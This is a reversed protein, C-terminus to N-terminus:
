LVRSRGNENGLLCRCLWSHREWESLSREAVGCRGRLTGPLLLLLARGESGCKRPIATSCASLPSTAPVMTGALEDSDLLRLPDTSVGDEGGRCFSGRHSGGALGGSSSIPPENGVGLGTSGRGTGPGATSGFSSIESSCVAAALRDCGGMYTGSCFESGRGANSGSGATEWVEAMLGLLNSMGCDLPSCFPLGDDAPVGM